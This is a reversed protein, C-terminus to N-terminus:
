ITRGREEYSTATKHWKEEVTRIICQKKNAKIHHFTWGLSVFSYLLYSHPLSTFSFHVIYLSYSKAKSDCIWNDLPRPGLHGIRHATSTRTKKKKSLTENILIKEDLGYDASKILCRWQKQGSSDTTIQQMINIQDEIFLM